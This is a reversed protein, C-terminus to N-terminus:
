QYEISVPLSVHWQLPLTGSLFQLEGSDPVIQAGYAGDVQRLSSDTFKSVGAIDSVSINKELWLPPETVFLKRLEAVTKNPPTIYDREPFGNGNTDNYLGYYRDQGESVSKLLAIVKLKFTLTGKSEQEEDSVPLTVLAVGPEIWKLVNGLETTGIKIVPMLGKRGSPVTRITKGLLITSAPLPVDWRSDSHRSKEKITLTNTNGGLQWVWPNRNSTVQGGLNIGGNFDQGPSNWQAQTYSSFLCVVSLVLTHLKIM